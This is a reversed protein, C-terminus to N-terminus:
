PPWGPHQYYSPAPEYQGSDRLWRRVEARIRFWLVLAAIADRIENIFVSGVIVAPIAITVLTAIV